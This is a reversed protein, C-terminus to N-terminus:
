RRSRKRWYDALARRQLTSACRDYREFVADTPMATNWGPLANCGATANVLAGDLKTCLARFERTRRDHLDLYGDLVVERTLLCVPRDPGRALLDERMADENAFRAYDVSDALMGCAATGTETAHPWGFRGPGAHHSIEGSGCDDFGALRALRHAEDHPVLVRWGVAVGALAIAGFLVWRWRHGHRESAQDM